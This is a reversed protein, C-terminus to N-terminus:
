DKYSYTLLVVIRSYETGVFVIWFKPTRGSRLTSYIWFVTRGGGVAVSVSEGNPAPKLGRGVCFLHGLGTNSLIIKLSKKINKGLNESLKKSQQMIVPPKTILRSQPNNKVRDQFYMEDCSVFSSAYYNACLCMNM